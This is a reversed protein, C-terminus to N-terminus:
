DVTFAKTAVVRGDLVFEVRYSGRGLLDAGVSQWVAGPAAAWEVPVAAPRVVIEAGRYWRTEFVHKGGVAGSWSFAAYAFVKDDKRFVTGIGTPGVGREVSAALMASVLSVQTAAAPVPKTAGQPAPPPASVLAPTAASPPVVSNPLATGLAEGPNEQGSAAVPQPAPAQASAVAPIEFPQPSTILGSSWATLREVLACSGPSGEQQCEYLLGEPQTPSPMGALARGSRGAATNRTLLGFPMARLMRSYFTYANRMTEAASGIWVVTPQQPTGAAFRRETGAAFLMACAGSCAGQAVTTVGARRVVTAVDDYVDMHDLVGAMDRLVLVRAGQKFHGGLLARDNVDVVGTVILVEGVRQYTMGHAVSAACISVLLLAGASLRRLFRLM